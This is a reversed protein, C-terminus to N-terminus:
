IPRRFAGQLLLHGGDHKINKLWPGLLLYEEPLQIFDKSLPLGFQYDGVDVTIKKEEYAIIVAREEHFLQLGSSKDLFHYQVEGEYFQQYGQVLHQMRELEQPSEDTYIVHNVGNTRYLLLPKKHNFVVLENLGLNDTKFYVIFLAFATLSTTAALFPRWKGQIMFYYVLGILSYAILVEHLDIHFGRSVANPLSDIWTIFGIITLFVLEMVWTVLDSVYPIFHTLFFLLVVGLAIGSLLLLGINTLVFYNPFQHFYYLSIPLTGIQAAIGVAVGDWIYRLWKHPLHLISQVPQFFLSIGLIALYSLQFGIDFLASGDLMLIFLASVLIANLSFFRRGLLHGVGLMSFMLTARFVSPALGTLLAFLWVIILACVIYANRHRLFPIQFFMWQLIALLIGVHLGSVALVHMAGANAFSTRQEMSLQSKDGLALASTLGALEAPLVENLKQKFYARISEFFGSVSPFSYLKVWSRNDVFLRHEIGKMRWYHQADFEGPNNSNTIPVPTLATIYVDGTAIPESSFVLMKGTASQYNTRNGIGKVEAIGKYFKGESVEVLQIILHDGPLHRNSFHHEFFGPTRIGLSLEGSLFFVVLVIAGLLRHYPLTSRRQIIAVLLLVIASLWSTLLIYWSFDLWYQAIIGAIFAFTILATPRSIM